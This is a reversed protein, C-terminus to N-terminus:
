QDPVSVVLWLWANRKRKRTPEGMSFGVGFRGVDKAIGGEKLIWECFDEEEALVRKLAKGDEVGLRGHEYRQLAEVLGWLFPRALLVRGGEHRGERPPILVGKADESTSLKDFQGGKQRLLVSVGVRIGLAPAVPMGVRWLDALAHRQIAQAYLGRLTGIFEYRGSRLSGERDLPFTKLNKPEWWVSFPRNEVLVFNDVAAGDEDLEKLIGGM